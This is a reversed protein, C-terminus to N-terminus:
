RPPPRSAGASTPPGYSAGSAAGPASAHDRHDLCRTRRDIEGDERRELERHRRPLASRRRHVRQEAGAPGVALRHDPLLRRRRQTHGMARSAGRGHQQCRAQVESRPSRTVGRSSCPRHIGAPRDCRRRLVAPDVPLRGARQAPRPPEVVYHARPRRGPRSPTSCGPSRASRPWPLAVAFFLGGRCDRRWSTTSQRSEPTM